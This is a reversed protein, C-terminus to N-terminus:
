LFNKSFRRPIKGLFIGFPDLMFLFLYFLQCEGKRRHRGTNQLQNDLFYGDLSNFLTLLYVLFLKELWM